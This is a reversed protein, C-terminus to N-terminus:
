YNKRNFIWITVLIVVLSFLLSSWLPMWSQVPRELAFDRGIDLIEGTKPIIYYFGDLIGSFLSSDVLQKIVQRGSLAWQAVGIIFATMIAIAHSGAIIGACIAITLYIYFVVGGTAITTLLLRLSFSGHVLTLTAYVVILSLSIVGFYAMFIGFMKNFYLSGRSIPKSLYYEARGRELMRPFLGATGLIGLLSLIWMYAITVPAIIAAKIGGLATMGQQSSQEEISVRLGGSALTILVALLTIILFLWIMKRDFMEVVTDRTIGKM